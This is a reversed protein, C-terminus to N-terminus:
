YNRLSWIDYFRFISTSLSETIKPEHPESSKTVSFKGTRKGKVICIKMKKFMKMFKSTGKWVEEQEFKHIDIDSSWKRENPNIEEDNM